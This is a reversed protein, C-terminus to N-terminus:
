FERHTTDRCFVKHTGVKVWSYLKARFESQRKDAAATWRAVAAMGGKMDKDIDMEVEIGIGYAPVRKRDPKLYYTAPSIVFGMAGRLWEMGISSTDLFPNHDEEAEM